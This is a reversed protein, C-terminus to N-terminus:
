IEKHLLGTYLGRAINDRTWRNGQRERLFFLAGETEWELTSNCLRSPESSSNVAAERPSRVNKVLLAGVSLQLLFGLNLETRDSEIFLAHFVQKNIFRLTFSCKGFGGLYKTVPATNGVGSHKSDRRCRKGCVERLTFSKTECKKPTIRPCESTTMFIFQILHLTRSHANQGGAHTNVNAPPPRFNCLGPAPLMRNQNQDPLM